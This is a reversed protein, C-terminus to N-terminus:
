RQCRWVRDSGGQSMKGNRRNDKNLPKSTDLHNDVEGELAVNLFDELVRHFTGDKGFLATGSKFQDKTQSLTEAYEEQTM